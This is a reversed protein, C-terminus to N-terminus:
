PDAGGGEGDAVREPEVVGEGHADDGPEAALRPWGSQDGVLLCQGDTVMLGGHRSCTVEGDPRGMEFTIWVSAAILGPLEPPASRSEDPRSIPIFM